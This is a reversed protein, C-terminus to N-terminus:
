VKTEKHKISESRFHARQHYFGLAFDAQQQLSLTRPFGGADDIASMVEELNPNLWGAKPLHAQTAMKLLPAFTNRPASSAAGYTREVLTANLDYGQAAGQAKELIAFLRGCLYAITTNSSDLTPTANMTNRKDYSRQLKIAAVLRHSLHDVAWANPKRLVQVARTVLAPPAPYGQYITRLLARVMDPQPAGHEAKRKEADIGYSTVAELIGQVSQPREEKGWPDVISTASLFNAMGRQFDQLSIHIWERLVLRTVNASLVALHFAEPDTFLSETKPKWPIQLMNRLAALDSSGKVYEAEPDFRGTFLAQSMAAVSKEAGAESAHRTWFVAVENSLGDGKVVTLRTQRNEMLYSLAASSKTGCGYCMPANLNQDRGFSNFADLNFTSIRVDNAFGKIGVPLKRLLPQEQGCISCPGVIDSLADELTHKEWFRQVHPDEFLFDGNAPKVAITDKAHMTSPLNKPLHNRGRAVQQLTSHGTDHAARELLDWFATFCDEARKEKGETPKGLVYEATDALLLPAIAVTRNLSPRRPNGSGERIQTEGNPSVELVWKIASSEAFKRYGTPMFGGREILADALEVLQKLM